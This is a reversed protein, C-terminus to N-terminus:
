DGGIKIKERMTSIVTTVQLSLSWNLTLGQYHHRLGTNFFYFVKPLLQVKNLLYKFIVQLTNQSLICPKHLNSSITENTKDIVRLGCSLLM